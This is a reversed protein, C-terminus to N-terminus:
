GSTPAQSPQNALSATVTQQKGGRIVTITMKDGPKDASVDNIVDNVSSVQNGNIKVIVDGVQLGAAAAPSGSQVSRVLAGGQTGSAPASSVGLYAHQPQGGQELTSIVQKAVDIPVLFGVGSNGSSSGGASQGTAIQDAIGIVDGNADLLPGGSNGPNLAADTQIAHSISFGDPAQISRDLASVVGTSLSRDYGYPDGIAAIPDGVALASSSGLTLPHLTVGSTDISLVAVDTSKDTGLVKAQKTKGDQFAVSVSSAGDVVHAATLIHGQNDIVFGTGTATTTSQSPGGFPDVQGGQDSTTSVGSATIDVVGPATRAYLDRASLGTTTSKSAAPFVPAAATQQIVTSSHSNSGVVGTGLLSGAVIGGGLVAAGVLGVAPRLRSRRNPTDM